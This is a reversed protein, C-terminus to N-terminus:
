PTNTPTSQRASVAADIDAETIKFAELIDPPLLPIGRQRANVCAELLLSRSHDECAHMWEVRGDCFQMQFKMCPDCGMNLVISVVIKSNFTWARPDRSFIMDGLREWPADAAGSREFEAQAEDFTANGSYIDRLDITGIMPAARARCACHPMPDSYWDGIFRDQSLILVISGEIDGAKAVRESLTTFFVRSTASESIGHAGCMAKHGAGGAILTSILALTFLFGSLIIAALKRGRRWATRTFWLLLAVVGILLVGGVVGRSAAHPAQWLPWGIWGGFFSGFVALLLVIFTLGLLPERSPATAPESESVQGSTENM